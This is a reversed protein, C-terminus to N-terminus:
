EQNKTEWGINKTGSIFVTSGRYEHPINGFERYMGYGFIIFDATKGGVPAGFAVLAVDLAM